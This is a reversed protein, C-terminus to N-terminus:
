EGPKYIEMVQEMDEEMVLMWILLIMIPCFLIILEIRYNHFIKLHEGGIFIIVLNHQYISKKTLGIHYQRTQYLRGSPKKNRETIFKYNNTILFM